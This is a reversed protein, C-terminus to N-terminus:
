EAMVRTGFAIRTELELIAMINADMDVADFSEFDIGDFFRDYTKSLTLDVPFPEQADITLPGGSQLHSLDLDVAATQNGTLSFPVALEGKTAVGELLYTAGVIQDTHKGTNHVDANEDDAMFPGYEVTMTCFTSAEVDVAAFSLLELDTQHINEPLQGWFADFDVSGGSCEHLTARSTTVYAASLNVTWGDDTEFTRMEGNSLDPFIGDQPTAHHTVLLQVLTSGGGGNQLAELLDCGTGLVATCSLAAAIVLHHASLSM